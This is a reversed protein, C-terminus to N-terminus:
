PQLYHVAKCIGGGEVFHYNAEIAFKYSSGELITKNYFARM